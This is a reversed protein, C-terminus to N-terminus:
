SGKSPATANFEEILAKFEKVEKKFNNTDKLEPHSQNIIRNKLYDLQKMKGSINDALKDIAGTTM